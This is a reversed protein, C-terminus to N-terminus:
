FAINGDLVADYQWDLLYNDALGTLGDYGRVYRCFWETVSGTACIVLWTDSKSAVLVTHGDLRLVEGNNHWGGIELHPACLVYMRLKSLLEPPAELYTEILLCNQHPDGLITKHITYLGNKERNTASFALAAESICDIEEVCNRREDHFFNEGDTVLFQLDRITRSYITPYYVETVCSDDLTYWVRSSTSYATGIAAKTGRTWRPEIGPGGPAFRPANPSILRSAGKRFSM